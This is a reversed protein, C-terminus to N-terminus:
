IPAYPGSHAAIPDAARQAGSLRGLRTLGDFGAAAAAARAPLSEHQDRPAVAAKFLLHPRRLLRPEVGGDHIVILLFGAEVGTLVVMGNQKVRSKNRQLENAGASTITLQPIENTSM